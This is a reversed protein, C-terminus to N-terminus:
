GTPVNSHQHLPPPRQPGLRRRRGHVAAVQLRDPLRPLRVAGAPLGARPRDGAAAPAVPWLAQPPLPGTVLGGQGRGRGWWCARPSAWLGWGGELTSSFPSFVGCLHKNTGPALLCKGQM